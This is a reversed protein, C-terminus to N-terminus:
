LSIDLLRLVNEMRSIETAKTSGALLLGVARNYEDLVLSGSDGPQSMNTAVLQDEFHAEGVEGMNVVLSADVAVIEGWTVGSSRGSKQVRQGVRAEAVGTPAGLELIEKRVWSEDVPLALAADVLNAQSQRRFLRLEYGTFAIQM